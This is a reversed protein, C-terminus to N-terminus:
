AEEKLWDLWCLKCRRLSPSDISELACQSFIKGPPCGQEITVAFAAMEEASMERLQDYHTIPMAEVLVFRQKPDYNKAGKTDVVMM